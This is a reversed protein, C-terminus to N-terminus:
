RFSLPLHRPMRGGKGAQMLQRMMKQMDAFQKLLRNVDSVSTGSGTAIRKRRSGNIIEPRHREGPTMSDIIAEVRQLEREQTASDPMGKLRSLGPIMGILQDLPGMGRIQRLQDRFDELTFSQAKLKKELVAAQKADVQQQAREVLSLVDGMGLIRSAM